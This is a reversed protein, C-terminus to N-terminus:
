SCIDNNFLLVPLLLNGGGKEEKLGKYTIKVIVPAYENAEPVGTLM